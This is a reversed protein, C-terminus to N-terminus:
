NIRNSCLCLLIILILEFTTSNNIITSKNNDTEEIELNLDNNIINYYENIFIMKIKPNIKAIENVLGWQQM